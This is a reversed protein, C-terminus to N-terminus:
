PKAERTGAFNFHPDEAKVRETLSAVTLKVLEGTSLLTLRATGFSNPEYAIVYGRPDGTFFAVGDPDPPAEKYRFTGTPIDSRPIYVYTSRDPDPAMWTAPTIESVAEDDPLKGDHSQAYRWLAEKLQEMGRQRAAELWLEPREKPGKLGYAVAMRERILPFLTMSLGSCLAVTFLIILAKGMSLMPLRGVKSALTNWYRHFMSALIWLIALWFSIGSVHAETFSNLPDEWNQGAAASLPYFAPMLVGAVYMAQRSADRRM